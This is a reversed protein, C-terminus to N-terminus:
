RSCFRAAVLTLPTTGDGEAEAELAVAGGADFGAADLEAEEEEELLLLLLLPPPPPMNLPNFPPKKLLRGEEEEEAEEEAAEAEEAAAEDAGLGVGVRVVFSSGVPIFSWIM